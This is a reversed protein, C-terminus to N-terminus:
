EAPRLVSTEGLGLGEAGSRIRQEYIEIQRMLMAVIDALRGVM